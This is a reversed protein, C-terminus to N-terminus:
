QPRKAMDEFVLFEEAPIGAEKHLKREYKGTKINIWKSLQSALEEASLGSYHKALTCVASIIVDAGEGAAPEKLKKGPLKGREVLIAEALEGNEESVKMHLESADLQDFERALEIIHVMQREFDTSHGQYTRPLSQQERYELRFLRELGLLECAVRFSAQLTSQLPISPAGVFDGENTSAFYLPREDEPADNGYVEGVTYSAVDYACGLVIYYANNRTQRLLEMAEMRTEWTFPNDGARLLTVLDVVSATKLFDIQVQQLM